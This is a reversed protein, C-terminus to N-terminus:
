RGTFPMIATESGSFCKPFSKGEEVNRKAVAYVDNVTWQIYVPDELKERIVGGVPTPINADFHIEGYVARVISPVGPRYSTGSMFLVAALKESHNMAVKM